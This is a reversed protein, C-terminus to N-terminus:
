IDRSLVHMAKVSENLFNDGRKLEFFVPASKGHEIAANAYGCPEHKEIAVTYSTSPLPQATAIQVVYCQKDFYLVIPLFWRAKWNRFQLSINSEKPMVIEAAAHKLTTKIHKKKYM